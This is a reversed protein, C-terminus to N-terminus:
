VTTAELAANAQRLLNINFEIPEDHHDVLGYSIGTTPAKVWRYWTYGVVGPHNMGEHLAAPGAEAVYDAVSRGAAEAPWHKPDTFPPSAWAFEGILLPTQTPGYYEQMREAMNRRYNNATIVDVHPPQFAALIAEGPPAGFRSGLILHNPDHRRIAEATKEVYRQAFLTSFAEQETGYGPTTIIHGEATLRALDDRSQVGELGWAAAMAGVSGHRELVFAWAQERAPRDDPLALCTQLLTPGKLNVTEPAGWILDTNAQGWGLENDTYYGILERSDRRPACLRAAAEDVAEVWRPDFVDPVKVGRGQIPPCLKNCELIETWPLGQDFFEETVWAGFANFGWDRLRHITAEVFKRPSTQYDYKRDVTAAYPGDKALRGGPTGARNVGCVGRFRFPEDEPTLMTWRGQADRAVRFHGENGLVTESQRTM